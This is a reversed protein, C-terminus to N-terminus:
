LENVHDCRVACAVSIYFKILHKPPNFFPNQQGCLLRQRVAIGQPCEKERLRLKKTQLCVLFLVKKM